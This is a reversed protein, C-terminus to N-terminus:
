RGDNATQERGALARDHWLLMELTGAQRLWPQSHAGPLVLLDHDIRAAELRASLARNAELFPDKTSSMVHIRPARAGFAVAAREVFGVTRWAGIACQVSGVSQFAGSTRLAVEWAVYGGMSCGDLGIPGNVSPALKRAEPILEDVLFSAFADFLEDRSAAAAPNPTRPCLLAMGQFAQRELETNVKQLRDPDFPATEAAAVVPPNRLREYASELGYRIQWAELAARESVTEGRGHLLVLLRRPPPGPPLLLRAAGSWNRM